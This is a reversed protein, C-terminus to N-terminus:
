LLPLAASMTALPSSPPAVGGCILSSSGSPPPMLPAPCSAGECSPRESASTLQRALGSQLTSGVPCRSHQTSSTSSRGAASASLELPAGFGFGRSSANRLPPAPKAPCGAQDESSEVSAKMLSASASM